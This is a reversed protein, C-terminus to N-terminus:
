CRALRSGHKRVVTATIGLGLEYHLRSLVNESQQGLKFKEFSLRGKEVIKHQIFFTKQVATYIWELSYTVDYIRGSHYITPTCHGFRCSWALIGCVPSSGINGSVAGPKTGGSSSWVSSSTELDRERINTDMSEYSHLSVQSYRVTVLHFPADGFSLSSSRGTGHDCWM